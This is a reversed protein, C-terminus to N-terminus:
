LKNLKERQNQTFLGIKFYKTKNKSTIIFFYNTSRNEGKGNTIVKYEYTCESLKYNYIKGRFTVIKLEEESKEIIRAFTGLFLYLFLNFVFLFAIIGILIKLFPYKNTRGLVIIGACIM